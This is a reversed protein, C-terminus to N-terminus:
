RLICHAATMIHYSNLISGGCIHSFFGFSGLQLSVQLPQLLVGPPLLKYTISKMYSFLSLKIKLLKEQKCVDRVREELRDSLDYSRGTLGAAFKLCWSILIMVATCCSESSPSLPLWIDLLSFWGKKLAKVFSFTFVNNLFLVHNM